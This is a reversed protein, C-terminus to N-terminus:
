QASVQRITGLIDQFHNTKCIHTACGAETFKKASEASHFLGMCIIRILPLTEQLQKVISLAKHQNLPIGLLVIDPQLRKCTDTIKPSLHMEEVIHMDPEMMLVMKLGNRYVQNDDVLVLKKM